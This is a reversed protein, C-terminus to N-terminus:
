TMGTKRCIKGMGHIRAIDLIDRTQYCEFIDQLLNRRIIGTRNAAAPPRQIRTVMLGTEGEVM